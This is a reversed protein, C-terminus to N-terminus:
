TLSRRMQLIELLFDTNCSASKRHTKISGKSKSARVLGLSIRRVVAMNKAGHGARYRSLEDKLEVDLLRHTSEGSWHDRSGAALREIDLPACSIYLRPTL